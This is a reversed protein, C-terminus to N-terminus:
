SGIDFVLAIRHRDNLLSMNSFFARCRRRQEFWRRGELLDSAFYFGFPSLISGHSLWAYPFFHFPLLFIDM